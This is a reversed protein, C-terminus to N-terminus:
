SMTSFRHKEMFVNGTPIDFKSHILIGLHLQAHMTRKGNYGCGGLLLMSMYHLLYKFTSNM